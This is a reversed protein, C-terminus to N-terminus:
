HMESFERALEMYDQAGHSKPQYRFIDMGKAPAEALAINERIRSKMLKDKFHGELAVVVDRSLVKRGDYLTIFVGGLRLRKNLRGRIKEIVDVLAALGQMPLFEAQLPICVLDSATFANITLLGLSPPTDILIYDYRKRLPELADKLIYERGAEGSMEMEAGALELTAPVVDLGEKVAVPEMKYLGRLAGYVNREPTGLGLSATLNSQPDLDILLVKKGLLALGAGLNIASTTKGVGGKHNSMSIVKSM